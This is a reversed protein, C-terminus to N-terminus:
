KAASVGVNGGEVFVNANLVFVKHFIISLGGTIVM